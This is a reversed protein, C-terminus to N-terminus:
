APIERKLRRRMQVTTGEDTSAVQVDDMLGRMLILGRGRHKGRPPRWQGWDRVTISVEGDHVRADIELHADAAQYAHEISNACAEATAVSIEYIDQDTAGSPMLWRRLTHRLLPLSNPAAPLRLFLHAPDLAAATLALLAVDDTSGETGLLRSLIRDLLGELNDSRFASAAEVLRALGKDLSEGRVEVLGDTYLIITSGPRIAMGEEGYVTLLSSGLPPSGGELLSAQGDPSIVLPPLHGANAIRVTWSAPDVVLYLLTAMERMALLHNLREMVVAPAHGELAYARLAHQLQGMVSAAEVGRGAVDGMVMGIRGDSLAFVDYWDGGVETETRAPLYRTGVRVGPMEPLDKSLLSRQLTEAIGRQRTYMRANEVALAARHALEEGIQLDEQSYRRGSEATAFSIAGVAQGRTMMPIIMSSKLGVSKILRYAEEDRVAARLMEDPIDEVLQPRGSRMVQVAAHKEDVPVQGALRHVLDTKAPDAHAVELRRVTGDENLLYIVCWDAIRPVALRALNRLITEHDLSGSLQKSAESLFRLAEERHAVAQSMASMGAALAALEAPGEVAPIRPREGRAVTAAADALHEIPRILRLAIVLGLTGVLIMAAALAGAQRRLPARLQIELPQLPRSFALVWGTSRMPVIAGFRADETLPAPRGSLRVIEGSLARRINPRSSLDRAEFPPDPNISTYLIFGARDILTVRADEPLTDVLLSMFAPPYFAAVLYGRGRGDAGLVPRGFAITVQGSQIGRLADSWVATAGARLAQIYPRSSLDLGIGEGSAAAVVRGSLDTIFLARLIGYSKSVSALYPGVSKQELPMTQMTLAQGIALTTSEIDRLFRDLQAASIQAITVANELEAGVRERLLARELAFTLLVQLTVLVVVTLAVITSLRWRRLTFWRRSM